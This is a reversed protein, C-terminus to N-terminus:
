LDSVDAGAQCSGTPHIALAIAAALAISSVLRGKV